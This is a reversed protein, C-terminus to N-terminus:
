CCLQLNKIIRCHPPWDQVVRLALRLFDKLFVTKPSDAVMGVGNKYIHMPIMRSWQQATPAFTTDVMELPSFLEKELFKDYDMGSVVEVIRALVDFGHIGSYCQSTYPEFDLPNEAYYEVVRNLCIREKASLKAYIYDGVPGSGLGGSHTLLHRITILTKAPEVCQPVDKGMRGIYMKRFSPLFDAIPTDLELMGRDVLMLIAAATIPKTMSAMRFLTNESVHIGIREDGFCDQYVTKGNQTVAVAVGGVRGSEIDALVTTRIREKLRKENLVRM